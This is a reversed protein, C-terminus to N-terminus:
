LLKKHELIIGREHVNFGGVQESKSKSKITSGYFRGFGWWLQYEAERAVAGAACFSSCDAYSMRSQARRDARTGAKASSINDHSTSLLVMTGVVRCVRNEKIIVLEKRNM